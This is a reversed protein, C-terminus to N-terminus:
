VLLHMLGAIVEQFGPVNKMWKELDVNSTIDSGTVGKGAQADNIDNIMEKRAETLAKELAEKEHSYVKGRLYNLEEQLSSFKEM